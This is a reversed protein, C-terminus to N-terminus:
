SGLPRVAGGYLVGGDYDRNPALPFLKVHLSDRNSELLSRTEPTMFDETGNLM